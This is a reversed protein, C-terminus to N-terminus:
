PFGRFSCKALKSLTYLKIIIYNKSGPWLYTKLFILTLFVLSLILSRSVDSSLALSITFIRFLLLHKDFLLLFPIPCLNHSMPTIERVCFPESRLFGKGMQFVKLFLTYHSSILPRLAVIQLKFRKLSILRSFELREDSACLFPFGTMGAAIVPTLM